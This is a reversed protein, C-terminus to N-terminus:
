HETHFVIYDLFVYFSHNFLWLKHELNKTVKRLILRSPEATLGKFLSKSKRKDINLYHTEAFTVSDFWDVFKKITFRYWSVLRM